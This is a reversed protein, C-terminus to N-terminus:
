TTPYAIRRPNHKGANEEAYERWEPRTALFAGLGEDV